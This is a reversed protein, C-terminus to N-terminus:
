STSEAESPPYDAPNDWDMVVLTIGVWTLLGAFLFTAIGIPAAIFVSRRGGRVLFWLVQLAAVAILGRGLNRSREQTMFFPDNPRM